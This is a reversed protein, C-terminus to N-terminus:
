ADWLSSPLRYRDVESQPAVGPKKALCGYGCRTSGLKDGEIWVGADRALNCAMSEVLVAHLQSLVENQFMEAEKRLEQLSTIEQQMQELKQKMQVSLQHIIDRSEELDQINLDTATQVGEEGEGEADSYKKLIAVARRIHKSTQGCTSITKRYVTTKCVRSGSESSLKSLVKSAKQEVAVNIKTRIADARKKQELRMKKAAKEGDELTADALELRKKRKKM